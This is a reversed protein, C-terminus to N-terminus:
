LQIEILKINLTKAITKMQNDLTLLPIKLRETLELYYADYAYINFMCAIDLARAIIVHELHLPILNFTDFCKIIQERNLRKRMLMATLANGIEYPLVEPSILEIGRTNNIIAQKEPENLIVALFINADVVVMKNTIVNQLYLCKCIITKNKTDKDFM